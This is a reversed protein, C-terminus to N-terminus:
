KGMVIIIGTSIILLFTIFFMIINLLSIISSISDFIESISDLGLMSAIISLFELIFYFILMEVIIPLNILIIIIIIFFGLTNKMILFSSLVSSIADGVNSGVVPVFTGSVFKIGKMVLSDSSYSLISQTTLVGTFVTSFLSLIIVVFKRITKFIKSKYSEFSISSIINFSLLGGIVPILFMNAVNTILSSLLLSFSNYTIALTPNKSAIIISTMIPLYSNIFVTSVKVGAIVDTLMRSIPVIVLSLIILTTIISILNTLNNTEKLFSISISFIIIVVIIKIVNPIISIGKEFILKFIFKIVRTPTINFLEDFTIENVGLEELYKITQDDIDEWLNTYDIACSSVNFVLILILSITVTLFIKKM